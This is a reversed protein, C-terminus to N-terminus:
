TLPIRDGPQNAIGRKIAKYHRRQRLRNVGRLYRQEYLLARKTAGDDPYRSLFEAAVGYAVVRMYEQEPQLDVTNINPPVGQGVLRLTGSTPTFNLVLSSGKQQWTQTEPIDSRPLETSGLFVREVRFVRTLPYVRQGPTINITEELDFALTEEAFQAFIARVDDLTLLSEDADYGVFSRAINLITNENWAM